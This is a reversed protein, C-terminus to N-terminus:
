KSVFDAIDRKMGNWWYRDKMDYYMKTSGPHVNYPTYHADQMIEAKLNDVDLVCIRFGQMLAGDAGFGFECDKKQQVREVIRIM